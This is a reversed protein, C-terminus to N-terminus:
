NNYTFKLRLEKLTSGQPRFYENFFDDRVEVWATCTTIAKNGAPSFLSLYCDRSPQNILVETLDSSAANKMEGEDFQLYWQLSFQEPLRGGNGMAADISLTSDVDGIFTAMFYSNADDVAIETPGTDSIPIYDFPYKGSGPDFVPLKAKHVIYIGMSDIRPNHNLPIGASPAGAFRRNYRVRYESLVTHDNKITCYIRMPATFCQLLFPLIPATTEDIQTSSLTIPAPMNDFLGVMESKSMALLEAPLAKRYYDPIVDTWHEPIIPSDAIISKPIVFRFAICSTRDSFSCSQPIIELASTDLAYTVNYNNVALKL